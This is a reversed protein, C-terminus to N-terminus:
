NESAVRVVSFGVASTVAIVALCCKVADNKTKVLQARFEHIEKFFKADYAEISAKLEDSIKTPRAEQLYELGDKFELSDKGVNTVGSTIAEAENSPAGQTELSKVAARTTGTPNVIQSLHRRYEYPTQRRSVLGIARKMIAAAMEKRCFGPGGQRRRGDSPGIAARRRGATSQERWGGVSLPEKRGTHKRKRSEMEVAEFNM